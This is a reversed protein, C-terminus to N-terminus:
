GNGAPSSTARAAPATVGTRLAARRKDLLRQIEAPLAPEPWPPPINGFLAYRRLDYGVRGVIWLHPNPMTRGTKALEHEADARFLIYDGPAAVFLVPKDGELLEVMREGVLRIETELSRRGGQNRLMELQDIVRPFRVDSYWIIRPDQHAVQRLAPRYAEPLTRLQAAFDRSPAQSSVVSLVNPWSWLWLAWMTAVLAAFSANTKQRRYLEAAIVAGAVFVVAVVLLPQWADNWYYVRDPYRAAFRQALVAAAIVGAPVLVITASVGMRTLWARRPRQPDFFEALEIGLLVLLPPMAPLLYRSEKGVSVTFFALLGVFWLWVFWLGNREAGTHRRFPRSLAGFISLSFPATFAFAVGVYMLYYWWQTQERVNPLEGTVRDVFEVRWKDWATPEIQVTAIVWPLWPLLFLALGVLHWASALIRWRNRLLVYLAAPLGVCVLPMPMKYLMALGAFFYGLLWLTVRRAGARTTESGVWLCALSLAMLTTVPLDASGGHSAHLVIACSACAFGAFVAAREGAIRLTLWFVTLVLVVASIANPIRLSVEDVPSGRLWATLMVAWYAGPSKQMRVEGSFQPIIFPRLSWGKSPAEAAMAAANEYMERATQGVWADVPELGAGGGLDYFSVVITWGVLAALWARTASQMPQRQPATPLSPAVAVPQEDPM